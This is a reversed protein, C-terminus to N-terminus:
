GAVASDPDAARFCLRGVRFHDPGSVPFHLDCTLIIFKAQCASNSDEIYSFSM